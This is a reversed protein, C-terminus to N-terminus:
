IDVTPDKAKFLDNIHNILIRRLWPYLKDRSRLAHYHDYAKLLADEVADEADFANGLKIRAITLLKPVYPGVAEYFDKINTHERKM